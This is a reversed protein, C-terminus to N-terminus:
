RASERRDEVHEEAFARQRTRDAESWIRPMGSSVVSTTFLSGVVTCVVRTGNTAFKKLSGVGVALVAVLEHQRGPRDRADVDADGLDPDVVLPRVSVFFFVVQWFFRRPLHTFFFTLFVFTKQNVCGVQGGDPM